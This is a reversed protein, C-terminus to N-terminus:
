FRYSVPPFVTRTGHPKTFAYNSHVGEGNCALYLDLDSVWGERRDTISALAQGLLLLLQVDEYCSAKSTLKWQGAKDGNHQQSVKIGEREGIRNLDADCLLADAAKLYVTVEITEGDMQRFISRMKATIGKFDRFTPSVLTNEDLARWVAKTLREGKVKCAKAVIDAPVGEAALRYGLDLIRAERMTDNHQDADNGVFNRTIRLSKAANTM